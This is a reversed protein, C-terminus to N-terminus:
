REDTSEGMLEEPTCIEPCPFGEIACVARIAPKREANDIHGCNWTLLYDIHHVAAMAVHLADEAAVQPVAHEEILREALRAVADNMVLLSIGTMAALRRDAAEPDGKAAERRVSPSVFVDFRARHHHWWWVTLHQRASALLDRSPRATLYSFISTEAYVSKM